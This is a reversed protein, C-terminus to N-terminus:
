VEPSGAEAEAKAAEWDELFFDPAQDRQICCTIRATERETTSMLVDLTMIGEKRYVFFNERHLDWPAAQKLLEQIQDQDTYSIGYEKYGDGRRISGSAEIKQVDIGRWPDEAEVGLEKLVAMTREFSAYLPYEEASAWAWPDDGRHQRAQYDEYILDMEDLFGLEGVPSAKEMDEITQEMFDQQYAELLRAVDEPESIEAYQLKVNDGVVRYRVKEVDEATETLLPYRVEKYEPDAYLAEMAEMVQSLYLSYQRQVRKGNKLTYQVHVTTWYQGTENLRNPDEALSSAIGERAIELVPEVDTVKMHEFLYSVDIDSILYYSEQEPDKKIEYYYSHYVDYPRIAVSEVEEADPLYTDYGLWDNQFCFLIALGAAACGALQVKHAFLKRFDFHYIIEMVCHCVVVGMIVGFVAWGATSQLAYFFLGGAMGFELCLLIRFLPRSWSFAMAKGAAESPRKKYLLLALVTIVVAGAAGGILYPVPSSAAEGMYYGRNQLAAMADLYPSMPSLHDLITLALPTNDVELYTQFFTSEYGRILLSLAPLACFFVCCGLLGVILNGTMVMALVAVSYVLLFFLMHFCWGMFAAKWMAGSLAVGYSAGVGLALLLCLLYSFAFIVAGMVYAAAFLTERRVPISHYFDVKKKNHLFAFSSAGCVIAGVVVLLAIFGNARHSVLGLLTIALHEAKTISLVDGMQVWAEYQSAANSLLLAATVPFTFFFTLLSLALLWVRRKGNERALKFFLNKSTM